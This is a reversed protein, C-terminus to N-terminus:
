GEPNGPVALEPVPRNMLRALNVGIAKLVAPDDVEQAVAAHVASILVAHQDMTVYQKAELIRKRESAAIKERDKILNVLERWAVWDGYGDSMAENLAILTKKIEDPDGAELAKRFAKFSTKARLWVEGAGGADVRKMVDALRADLVALEQRCSLLEPDNAAQHYRDQLRTPLLTSYKGTKFHPSETGKPTLGGHFRCVASGPTAHNKCQEGTGKSKATCRTM